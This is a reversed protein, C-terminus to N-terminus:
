VPLADALFEILLRVREPLQRTSYVLQIPMSPLVWEPFIRVLRGQREGEAAHLGPMLGIGQGASVLEVM